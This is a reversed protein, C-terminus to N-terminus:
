KPLDPLTSPPVFLELEGAVAYAAHHGIMEARQHGVKAATAIAALADDLAGAADGTYWRTIAAGEPRVLLQKVLREPDYGTRSLVHAVVDREFRQGLVSAAQLAAKDAPELRDMRAQM